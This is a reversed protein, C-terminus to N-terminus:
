SAGLVVVFLVHLPPLCTLCVDGYAVLRFSTIVGALEFREPMDM